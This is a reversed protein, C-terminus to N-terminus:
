RKNIAEKLELFFQSLELNEPLHNDLFFRVASRKHENLNRNNLQTAIMFGAFKESNACQKFLEKAKEKHSETAFDSKIVYELEACASLNILEQLQRKEEQTLEQEIPQTQATASADSSSTAQTANVMNTLM